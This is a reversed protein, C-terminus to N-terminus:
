WSGHMSIYVAAGDDQFELDLPALHSEFTIRPAVTEERCYGDTWNKPMHDGVMQKGTEAGGPYHGVNSEDYIAVCAPYGFNKGYVDNYTDDPRGHFNLEEGPNSQHIDRGGRKMGDLSNEVSWQARM